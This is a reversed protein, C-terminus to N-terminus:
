EKEHTPLPTMQDIIVQVSQNRYDITGALQVFQNENLHVSIQAYLKPFVTCSVEETEDQLTLFAMAEGKKTRIRKISLIIGMCKVKAGPRLDLLSSIPQILDATNRKLEEIPHESLYFGLTDREFALVTLRNMTGGPNYKPHSNFKFQESLADDGIYLAHSQAADISALLIARTEGFGDLAGAKILPILTKETFHDAGLAIAMDFMSSWQQNERAIALQQYFAFTVGKIAGLGLRIANGEVTHSYRSKTVSPPHIEIGKAKIERILEMM